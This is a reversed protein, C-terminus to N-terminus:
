GHNAGMYSVGALWLAAVVVYSARDTLSALRQAERSSERELARSSFTCGMNAESGVFAHLQSICGNVAALYAGLHQLCLTSICM